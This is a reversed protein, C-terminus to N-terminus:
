GPHSSGAALRKSRQMPTSAVGGVGSTAKIWERAIGELVADLNNRHIYRYCRNIRGAQLLNANPPRKREM